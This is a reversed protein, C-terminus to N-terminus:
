RRLRRPDSTLPLTTSAISERAQDALAETLKRLVESRSRSMKGFITRAVGYAVGVMGFVMGLAAFGSHFVNMGIAISPGMMGGGGGGMIGGYLAGALDRLRESVYINTKGARVLVSISVKRQRDANSWTLSRGVASVLGPDNLARRIIDVMVDFDREPMEGDIVAEFTLTTPAGLFPNTAPAIGPRV